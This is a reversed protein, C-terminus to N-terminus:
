IICSIISSLAYRVIDWSASQIRVPIVGMCM